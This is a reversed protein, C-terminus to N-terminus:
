ELNAWSSLWLRMWDESVPRMQDLTVSAKRTLDMDVTSGQGSISMTEQLYGMIKLAPYKEAAQNEMERKRLSEIWDALPVIECQSSLYAQIAPLLRPWEVPNPNLLNYVQPSNPKKSFVDHSILETISKTMLNVPIWDVPGLDSPILALQASTKMLSPFWERENWSAPSGPNDDTPVGGAVQGLRLITVGLGTRRAFEELVREAVYKSQAYGMPMAASATKLVKESIHFEKSELTCNSSSISSIFFLRPSNKCSVLVTCLASLARIQPEFFSLPQNFNVTWASFVIADMTEYMSQDKQMDEVSMDTLTITKFEVETNEQASPLAEHQRRDICTIKDIGPRKILSALLEKGLFGTSGVLGVHLHGDVAMKPVTQNPKDNSTYARILREIDEQVNEPNVDPSKGWVTAAIADALKKITPFRFLTLITIFSLEKQDFYVSLCTRLSKSLELAMLSDLGLKFLDDDESASAFKEFEHTCKKVLQFIKSKGELNESLVEKTTEATPGPESYLQEIVRELKKRTASRVITGKPARIFDGAEVIAVKGKMLHGHSQSNQNAQEVLPWIAGLLDKTAAGPKPEIVAAPQFKGDGTILVGSVDLHSEIISESPIPNWKQGNSFVIIDDNRGYFRWLGPRNENPLFLDRTRYEPQQRLITGGIGRYQDADADRKLVLEFAGDLEPEMTVKLAPHFEMYQWTEPPQVLCTITATETAGYIPSLRTLKALHEGAAKSLPGGAYVIDDLKQILEIAGDLALMGEVISPPTFLLRVRKQQMMRLVLEPLAPRDPFGLLLSCSQGFVPHYIYSICGALHFPPFPCLFYGGGEYNWLIEGATQRGPIQPLPRDVNAFYQHTQTIPKPAGTSGSSHLVLIPDFRAEEITKTFPYPEVYAEVWKDFSGLDFTELIDHDMAKQLERVIGEMESSHFIKNCGTQKLLSVNQHTPNRSSPFLVKYGCKVAAFFILTYRLDFIGMYALTEFTKSVGFRSAIYTALADVGRLVEGHTLDRFGDAIEHTLPVSAYVRNPTETGTHDLVAPLLRSGKNANPLGSM